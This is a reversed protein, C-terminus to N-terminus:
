HGFYVASTGLYQDKVLRHSLGTSMDYAWVAFREAGVLLTQWRETIILLHHDPIYTLAKFQKGQPLNLRGHINGDLDVLLYDVDNGSSERALCALQDRGSIWVAAQLQCTNSLAVRQVLEKTSVNYSHIVRHTPAGTAFLVTDHRVDLITVLQNPNHTIVEANYSPDRTRSSAHLRKGDDWVLVGPGPLYRAIVGSYLTEARGTELDVWSIRPVELNEVTATEALLLRGEGFASVNRITVAGRNATITSAGQELDFEGIYNGSAFYLHGHVEPHSQPECSQLPSVLCFISIIRVFQRVFLSL